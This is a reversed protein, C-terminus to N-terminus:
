YDAAGHFRNEVSRYKTLPADVQDLPNHQFHSEKPSWRARYFSANIANNFGAIEIRALDEVGNELDLALGYGLKRVFVLVRELVDASLVIQLVPKASVGGNKVQRTKGLGRLLM